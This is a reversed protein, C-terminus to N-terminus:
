QSSGTRTDTHRHAHTQSTLERSTMLQVGSMVKVQVKFTSGIVKVM